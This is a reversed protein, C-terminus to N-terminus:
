EENWVINLEAPRDILHHVYLFADKFSKVTVAINATDHTYIDAHFYDPDESEQPVFAALHMGSLNCSSYLGNTETCKFLPAGSDRPGADCNNTGYYGDDSLITFECDNMAYTLALTDDNFQPAYGMINLEHLIEHYLDFETDDDPFTFGIFSAPNDIPRDLELIVWHNKADEVNKIWKLENFLFKNVKFEKYARVDDMGSGELHIFEFVYDGKVLESIGKKMVCHAATIIHKQGIFSATCRTDWPSKLTGVRDFPYPVHPFENLIERNIYGYSNAFVTSSLILFLGLLIFFKRIHSM